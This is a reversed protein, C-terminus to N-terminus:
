GDLHEKGMTLDFKLVFLNSKILPRSALSGALEGVSLEGHPDLVSIVVVLGFRNEAEKTSLVAVVWFADKFCSLNIRGDVVCVIEDACEILWVQLALVSILCLLGVAFIQSFEHCVKVLSQLLRARVKDTAVFNGCCVECHAGYDERKNLILVKTTATIVRIFALSKDLFILRETGVNLSHFGLECM